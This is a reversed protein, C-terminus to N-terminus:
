RFDKKQDEVTEKGRKKSKKLRNEMSWGTITKSCLIIVDDGSFYSVKEIIERHEQRTHVHPQTM